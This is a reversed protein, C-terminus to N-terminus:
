RARRRRRTVVFGSILVLLPLVGLVLISLAVQEGATSIALTGYVTLTPQIVPNDSDGILASLLKLALTRNDSHQMGEVTIFSSSGALYIAGDGLRALAGVAFLGTRDGAEQELTSLNETIEKAYCGAPSVAVYAANGAKNDVLEISGCEGVYLNNDTAGVDLVSKVLTPSFATISGMTANTEPVLVLDNNLKLNAQEFLRRFNTLSDKTLSIGAGNEVSKANDMYFVAKGGDAIFARVLNYQEDTLDREPGAFVLVDTSNSVQALADASLELQSVTFNRTMAGVIYDAIDSPSREGLGTVLLLKGAVGTRVYHIASLVSQEATVGSIGSEGILYLDYYDLLKFRTKEANSVVVTGSAIVQGSLMFPSLAAVSDVPDVLEFSIHESARDIAQLLGIITNDRSGNEYAGFIVIDDSLAGIYAKGEDSLSFVSSRSFDGMLGFKNELVGVILNCLVVIVALIAAILMVYRTHRRRYQVSGAKGEM